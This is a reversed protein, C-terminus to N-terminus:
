KGKKDARRMRGFARVYLSRIRATLTAAKAKHVDRDKEWAAVDKAEDATLWERWEDKTM